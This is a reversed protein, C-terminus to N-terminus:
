GAEPEWSIRKLAIIAFVVSFGLLVAVSTLADRLGGGRWIMDDFGNIAWTIPVAKSVTQMFKPLLEMPFWAGGLMCMGLVALTSLGRSQQANKGLSAVLLGFAATMVSVAFAILGFGLYCEWVPQIQFHYVLAGVGFVFFLIALARITSSLAKGLVFM